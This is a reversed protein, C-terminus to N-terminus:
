MNIRQEYKKVQSSDIIESTWKPSLKLKQPIQINQINTRQRLLLQFPTSEMRYARKVRSVSEKATCFCKQQTYEWKNIRTIIAKRSIKIKNIQRKNCINYAVLLKYIRSFFICKRRQINWSFLRTLLTKSKKKRRIEHSERKNEKTSLSSFYVLYLYSVNPFLILFVYM